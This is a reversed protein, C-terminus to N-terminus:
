KNFEYSQKILDFVKTIEDEREVKVQYDGNGWHGIHKPKTLDRAIGYPDQLQGSKVNLFVKLSRTQIVVDVFNTTTKYAIYHARPEEIIDEDLSLIRERLNSFIQKIEKQAKQLHHDLSYINPLGESVKQRRSRKGIGGGSIRVKQYAEPELSLIDGEYIRYKYLEIKIPLLDVTDLDFKNYSEAICIVRPSEWDIRLKIKKEQCLLEFDAKHDLLWRLYSLGQNIVNDNQNKKYEIIVPAGNKDIGLTDIRGGFSTSFESALFIIGLLEELNTEFLQQLEKERRLKTSRLRKVRTNHIAFLAM